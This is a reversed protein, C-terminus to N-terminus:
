SEWPKASSSRSILCLSKQATSVLKLNLKESLWRRWQIWDINQYRNTRDSMMKNLLM